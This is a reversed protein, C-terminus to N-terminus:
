FKVYPKRPKYSVHRKAINAPILGTEIAEALKNASVKYTSVQEFAFEDVERRLGEADVEAVSTIVMQATHKNGEDDLFLMQEGHLRHKALEDQLEVRRAELEAVEAKIRYIEALAAEADPEVLPETDNM